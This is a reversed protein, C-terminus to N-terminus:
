FVTELFRCCAETPWTVPRTLALHSQSTELLVASLGQVTSGVNAPCAFAVQDAAISYCVQPAASTAGQCQQMIHNQAETM